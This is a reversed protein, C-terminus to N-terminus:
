RSPWIKLKLTLDFINDVLLQWNSKVHFYYHTWSWEESRHEENDRIMEPNAAAPDGMWIWVMSDKEVVPYTRINAMAPIRDQNPIRTCKGQGDFEVGHYACRIM